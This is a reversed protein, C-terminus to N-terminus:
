NQIHKDKQKKLNRSKRSEKITPNFYKNYKNLYSHLKNNYLVKNM